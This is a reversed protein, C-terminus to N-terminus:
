QQSNLHYILSIENSINVDRRDISKRVDRVYIAAVLYFHYESEFKTQIGFLLGIYQYYKILKIDKNEFKIFTLEILLKLYISLKIFFNEHM